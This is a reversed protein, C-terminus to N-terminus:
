GILMARNIAAVIDAGVAQRNDNQIQASQTFVYPAQQNLKDLKARDSQSNTNDELSVMKQNFKDYDYNLNGTAKLGVAEMLPSWPSNKGVQAMYSSNASAAAAATQQSYYNYMAQYLARLDTYEDGTQLVGYEKMLDSIRDSSVSTPFIRLQSTASYQYVGNVAGVTM